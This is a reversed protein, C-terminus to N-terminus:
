LILFADCFVGPLAEAVALAERVIGVQLEPWGYPDELVVEEPDENQSAETELPGDSTISGTDILKVVSLNVGHVNCVHKVLKLVSENGDPRENEKVGVAGKDQMMSAANALAYGLGIDGAEERGCVMLDMVCGIVERLIYAEKRHYGLSSYMSAIEELIIIRERHGMHLLWPGHAQALIVSIHSATIGSISSLRDRNAPTNYEAHALTPPIYPLPGSHLM